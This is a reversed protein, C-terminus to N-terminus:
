SKAGHALEEYVALVHEFLIHFAAPDVHAARAFLV